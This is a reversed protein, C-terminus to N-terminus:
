QCLRTFLTPASFLANWLDSEMLCKFMDVLSRILDVVNAGTSVYAFLYDVIHRLSSLCAANPGVCPDFHLRMTGSSPQAHM